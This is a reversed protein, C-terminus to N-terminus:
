PLGTEQQLAKLRRITDQAQQINLRAYKNDGYQEQSQSYREREAIVAGMTPSRGLSLLVHQRVKGDVRETRVVQYVFGATTKKRRIFAVRRSERAPGRPGARYHEQGHSNGLGRAGPRRAVDPPGKEQGATM